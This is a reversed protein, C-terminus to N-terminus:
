LFLIFNSYIPIAHVNISYIGTYMYIHINALSTKYRNVYFLSIEDTCQTVPITVNHKLCFDM